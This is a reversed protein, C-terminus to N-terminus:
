ILKPFDIFSSQIQRSDRVRSLELFYTNLFAFTAIDFAYACCLTNVYKQLFSEALFDSLLISTLNLLHCLAVLSFPLTPFELLRNRWLLVSHVPLVTVILKNPIISVVLLNCCGPSCLWYFCSFRLLFLWSQTHCSKGQDWGGAKAWHPAKFVLAWMGLVSGMVQPLLVSSIPFSDHNNAKIQQTAWSLSSPKIEGLM